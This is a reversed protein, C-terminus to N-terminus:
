SLGPRRFSGGFNRFANSRSLSRHSSQNVLSRSSSFRRKLLNRHSRGLFWTETEALLAGPLGEGIALPAPPVFGEQRQSNFLRRVPCDTEECEPNHFPPDVWWASEPRFLCTQDESLVVLITGYAWRGADEIARHLLSDDYQYGQSITSLILISRRSHVFKQKRQESSLKKSPVKLREPLGLVVPSGEKRGFQWASLTTSQAPLFPLFPLLPTQLSAQPHFTKKRWPTSLYHNSISNRRLWFLSLISSVRSFGAQRESAPEWGIRDSASLTM